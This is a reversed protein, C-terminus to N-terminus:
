NLTKRKRKKAVRKKKPLSIDVKSVKKSEMKLIKFHYRPPIYLMLRAYASPLVIRRNNIWKIRCDTIYVVYLTKRLLQEFGQNWM